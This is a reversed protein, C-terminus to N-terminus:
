SQLRNQREMKYQKLITSFVDRVTKKKSFILPEMCITDSQFKKNGRRVYVKVPHKSAFNQKTSQESNTLYEDKFYEMGENNSNNNINELLYISKKKKKRKKKRNTKYINSKEENIITYPKSAKHQQNINEPIVKNTKHIRCMKEFHQDIKSSQIIELQSTVNHIKLEKTFDM